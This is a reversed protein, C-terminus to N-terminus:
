YEMAVHLPGPPFLPKQRMCQRQSRPISSRGTQLDILRAHGYRALPTPQKAVVAVIGDPRCRLRLEETIPYAELTKDGYKLKVFGDFGWTSAFVPVGLALNAPYNGGFVAADRPLTPFAKGLNNGASMEMSYATRWLRSHRNLVHTYAVGLALGLGLTAVVAVKPGRRIIRSIGTGVIGLAAYAILLFGLGSVGNVRDAAGLISPTYGAPILMVWGLTAICLGTLGLLLWRRLSRGLESARGSALLLYALTGAAFIASIGWLVLRTHPTSGVPQVTRVLVEIGDRVILQIQHLQESLTTVSARSTHVRDWLAAVGIAVLDAAWRLRAARWGDRILYLLGFAAILPLTLEYTLVSLPYLLVAGLHLRWSRRSLGILAIWLGAFAFVLALSIPNASEWFRTADYWPYVITLASILWAHYWPVRFARLVSYSLGAVLLALFISLGVLYTADTGFAFHKLPFFLILVPRTSSLLVNMASLAGSLGSGSPPYLSVAATSWDDSFLGGHLLYPLFVLSGLLWLSGWALLLEWRTM